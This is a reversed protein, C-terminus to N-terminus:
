KTINQCKIDKKSRNEITKNLIDQKKWYESVKSELESIKLKEMENFHKM